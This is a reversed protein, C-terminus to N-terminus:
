VEDRETDHMLVELEHQPQSAIKLSYTEGYLRSVKTPATVALVDHYGFPHEYLHKVECSLDVCVDWGAQRIRRSLAYDESYYIGKHAMPMCWLPVEKEGLKVIPTYERAGLLAETLIATFGLPAGSISVLDGGVGLTADLPGAHRFALEPVGRKMYSACVQGIKKEVSLDDVIQMVQDATFVMDGDISFIVKPKALIGRELVESRGCVLDSSGWKHMWKFGYKSRVADISIATLPHPGSRTISTLLIESPEM